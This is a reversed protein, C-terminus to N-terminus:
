RQDVWKGDMKGTMGLAKPVSAKAFTVLSSDRDKILTNDKHYNAGQIFFAFSWAKQKQVPRFTQLKSV